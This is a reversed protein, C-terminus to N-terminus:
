PKVADEPWFGAVFDPKKYVVTFRKAAEMVGLVECVHPDSSYAVWHLPSKEPQGSVHRRAFEEMADLIKEFDM